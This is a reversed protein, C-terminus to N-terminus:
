REIVTPPPAPGGFTAEVATFYRGYEDHQELSREWRYRAEVRWYIGPALATLNGMYTERFMYGRGPLAAPDFIQGYGAYFRNADNLAQRAELVYGERPEPDLGLRQDRAWEGMIQVNALNFRGHVGYRRRDVNQGPRTFGQPYAIEGGSLYSIGLVDTTSARWDLRAFWDKTGNDDLRNPGSGNILGAAYPFGGAEGLVMIGLDRWRTFAGSEYVTGPRSATLYETMPTELPVALLPPSSSQYDDNGFPVVFQGVQIQGDRAPDRLIVHADEVQGVYLPVLGLGGGQRWAVRDLYSQYLEPNSLPQELDQRLSGGLVVHVNSSLSEGIRLTLSPLRASFQMQSLDLAGLLGGDFSLRPLNGVEARAGLEYWPTARAPLALGLM